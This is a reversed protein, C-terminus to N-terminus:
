QTTRTLFCYEHNFSKHLLYCRHCHYFLYMVIPVIILSHLHVFSSSVSLYNRFLSLSSLPSLPSLSWPIFIFFHHPSRYFIASCHCNLCHHCHLWHFQHLPSLPSLSWLIFIFFIILLGAMLQLAQTEPESLPAQLLYLCWEDNFDSSEYSSWCVLLCLHRCCIYADSVLGRNSDASVFLGGNFDAYFLLCLIILMLYDALIILM